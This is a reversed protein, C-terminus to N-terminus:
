KVMQSHITTVVVDMNDNTESGNVTGIYKNMNSDDTTSGFKLFYTM